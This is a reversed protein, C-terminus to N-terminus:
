PTVKTNSRHRNEIWTKPIQSWEGPGLIPVAQSGIMPAATDQTGPILLWLGQLECTRAHLRERWEAIQNVRDYRALLGVSHLVVTGPQAFLEDALIEFERDLLQQLKHWERGTPGGADARTIVEWSPKGNATAALLRDLLLEDFDIPTVDLRELEASAHALRRPLTVLVRVGGDGIWGNVTREFEEAEDLDIASVPRSGPIGTLSRRVQTGTLSGTDAPKPRVYRFSEDSWRLGIGANTLLDDLEPRGPLRDAEPFRNRVREIIEDAQMEDSAVFARRSAQLAQNAPMGARYVELRANVATDASIDTALEVLHSDAIPGMGAPRPVQQLVAALRQRDVVGSDSVAQDTARALGLAYDALQSSALRPGSADDGAAAEAAVVAFQDRRRVDWRETDQASETYLAARVVANAARRHTSPNDTALPPESRVLAATLQSISALGGVRELESAILTRTATVAPNAAWTERAATLVQAIRGSTVGIEAAPEKQNPWSAGLPERDPSPPWDLLLELARRPTEGDELEPLLAHAAAILSGASPLEAPTTDVPPAAPETVPQPEVPTATITPEDDASDDVASDLDLDAGSAAFFATVNAHLTLIEKRTKAGVGRISRLAGRRQQALEGATEIALRDLANTAKRSVALAGLPTSPALESPLGTAAAVDAPSQAPGSVPAEEAVRADGCPPTTIPAATETTTPSPADAEFARDWARAMDEATDFRDDAERALARAFFPVLGAAVSSEFMTPEVTPGDEIMAPHASGDGYRPRTGTALEFLAVAAGYRDGHLDWKGRRKLFPDVYGQTGAEIADLPAKALSFDFLVARLEDRAGIPAVGINDPKIDRHTIGREELHRLADLLDRGFREALEAGPQDALRAALTSQGAHSLMLVRHGDIDLPDDLMEVIRPHRLTSLALAEDDLRDNIEISSSVKLVCTRGDHFHDAVELAIATSGSGLRHLVEFRGAGVTDGKRAELVHPEDPDVSQDDLDDALHEELLDVNALLDGVSLFRDGPDAYTANAVFDVVENDVNDGIVAADVYGSSVLMEDFAAVSRAPPSGTLILVAIAGISFIDGLSPRASEQAYEPARYFSADVTSLASGHQTARTLSASALTGQSIRAGAHWNTIKISASEADGSVLITSPALNRHSVGRQHAHHVAEAIQRVLGLRREITLAREVAPEALWHHLPVSDADYDFLLAPGRDTETYDVPRLIGPHELPNLLEFERKAARAAVLRAEDTANHEIPYIRVRRMVDLSAHKASFDQYTIAADTSADADDLLDVIRYDGVQRRSTLERIGIEDIARAVAESTPRDIRRRPRGSRDPELSTVYEVIGGISRRSQPIEQGDAADRGFVNHRGSESFRTTLHKDSLFVLESLFPTKANRASRMASSRQILSALVKAKKNALIRPNDFSRFRDKPPEWHWTSQDGSLTGPHAKFEILYFGAPTVLLLDVEYMAGNSATFSFNSWARTVPSNPLARRFWALAEREHSHESDTVTVWKPDKVDM